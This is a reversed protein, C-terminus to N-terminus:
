MSGILEILEQVRRDNPFRTKLTLALDRVQQM